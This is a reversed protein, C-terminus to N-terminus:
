KQLTRLHYIKENFSKDKILDIENLLGDFTPFMLFMLIFIIFNDIFTFKCILFLILSISIFEDRIFIKLCEFFILLKRYFIM